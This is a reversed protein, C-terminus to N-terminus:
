FVAKSTPVAVLVSGQVDSQYSFVAKSTPNSSSCQWVSKPIAGITEPCEVKGPSNGQRQSANYYRTKGGQKQQSDYVYIHCQKFDVGVLIWNSTWFWPIILWDLLFINEEEFWYKRDHRPAMGDENRKGEQMDRAVLSDVVLFKSPPLGASVTDQVHLDLYADLIVDVVEKGALLERFDDSSPQRSGIFWIADGLAPDTLHALGADATVAPAASNDAASNDVAPLETTRSIDKPRVSFRANVLASYDCSPNFKSFLQQVLECPVGLTDARFATFIPALLEKLDAPNRDMDRVISKQLDFELLMSFAVFVSWFGCQSGDSRQLGLATQTFGKHTWLLYAWITPESLVSYVLVKAMPIGAAFSELKTTSASGLCIIDIFQKASNREMPHHLFVSYASRGFDISIYLDSKDARVIRTQLLQLDTKETIYPSAWLSSIDKARYWAHSVQVIRGLTVPSTKLLGWIEALIEVPMRSVYCPKFSIMAISGTASSSHSLRVLLSNYGPQIAM